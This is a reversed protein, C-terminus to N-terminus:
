LPEDVLPCNLLRDITCPWRQGDPGQNEHAEVAVNMGCCARQQAVSGRHTQVRGLNAKAYPMWMKEQRMNNRQSLCSSWPSHTMEELGGKDRKNSSFLMKLRKWTVKRNFPFFFLTEADHYHWLLVTLLRGKELLGEM